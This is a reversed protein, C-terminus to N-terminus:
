EASPAAFPFAGTAVKRMLLQEPTTTCSPHDRKRTEWMRLIAILSLGNILKDRELGAKVYLCSGASAM